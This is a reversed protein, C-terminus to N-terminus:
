AIDGLANEALELTIYYMYMYKYIGSSDGLSLDRPEQECAITCEVERECGESNFGTSLVCVCVCCRWNESNCTEISFVCARVHVNESLCVHVHVHVHVNENLCM